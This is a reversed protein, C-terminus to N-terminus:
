GGHKVLKGEQAAKAQGRKEGPLGHGFTGCAMLRIGVFHARPDFGCAAQEFAFRRL